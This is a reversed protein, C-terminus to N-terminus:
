CAHWADSPRAEAQYFHRQKQLSMQQYVSEAEVL